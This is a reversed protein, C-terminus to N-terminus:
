SWRQADDFLPPMFPHYEHRNCLVIRKRKHNVEDNAALQTDAVSRSVVVIGFFRLAEIENIHQTLQQSNAIANSREFKYVAPIKKPEYRYKGCNYSRAYTKLKPSL